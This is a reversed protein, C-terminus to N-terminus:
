RALAFVRPPLRRGASLRVIPIHSTAPCTSILEATDQVLSAAMLILDPVLCSAKVIAEFSTRAVAVRFGRAQLQYARRVRSPEDPDAVLVLPLAITAAPTSGTPVTSDVSATQLDSM